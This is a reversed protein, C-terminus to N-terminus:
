ENGFESQRLFSIVKSTFFIGDTCISSLYFSIKASASYETLKELDSFSLAAFIYWILAFSEYIAFFNFLM